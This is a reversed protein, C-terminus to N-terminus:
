KQRGISLELAEVWKPKKSNQQTDEQDSAFPNRQSNRQDHPRRGPQDQSSSDSNSNSNPRWLETKIGGQELRSAFDNLGSRLSQAMGEDSTRVSVHVEGAREVFRVDTGRESDAIRVTIDSASTSPGPRLDIVEELRAAPATANAPPAVEIKSLASSHAATNEQLFVTGPKIASETAPGSPAIPHLKDASPEAANTQGQAPVITKQVPATSKPASSAQEAPEGANPTLKAAFALDGKSSTAEQADVHQTAPAPRVDSQSRRGLEADCNDQTSEFDDGTSERVDTPILPATGNPSEGKHPAVTEIAKFVRLTLPLIEKPAAAIEFPAANASLLDTDQKDTKGGKDDKSEQKAGQKSDESENESSFERLYSQFSASPQEEETSRSVRANDDGAIARIMRTNGATKGSAHTNTTSSATSTDPTVRAAASRVSHAVGTM